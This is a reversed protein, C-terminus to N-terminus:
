GEFVRQGRENVLICELLIHVAQLLLQWLPDGFQLLCGQLLGGRSCAGGQLLCWRWLLYWEPHPGPPRGALDGEVGGKPMPRSVGRPRIGRLKGRPHPGPSGTPWIGRLKGCPHPDPFRCHMSPYGRGGHVSVCRYFCLRRLSLKRATIFLSARRALLSIIHSNVPELEQTFSGTPYFRANVNKCTSM